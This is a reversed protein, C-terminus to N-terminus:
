HRAGSSLEELRGYFLIATEILADFVRDDTTSGQVFVSLWGRDRSLRLADTRAGLQAQLSEETLLKHRILETLVDKVFSDDNGTVIFKESFKEDAITQKTGFFFPKEFFDKANLLIQFKKDSLTEM